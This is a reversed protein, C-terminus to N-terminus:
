FPRHDEKAKSCIFNIVKVAINMVEILHLPLTKSAPTYRHPSCHLSMVHFWKNKVVTVFGSKVGIMALAGDTCIHKFNQWSLKNAEFFTYVLAKVDAATNTAANSFLFEEKTTRDKKYRAFAILNSELASDTSKELQISAQLTSQKFELCVQQYM